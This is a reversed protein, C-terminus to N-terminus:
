AAKEKKSRAAAEAKAREVMEYYTDDCLSDDGQTEALASWYAVAMGMPMNWSRSEGIHKFLSVAIILPWPHKVGKGGGPSSSLREPMQTSQAIYEEFKKSEAGFDMKRCSKGWKAVDAILTESHLWKQADEFTRSCVQVAFSLNGLHPKGGVAFPSDVAMLIYVHGLSLPLLRVGLVDPELPLIANKFVEQM